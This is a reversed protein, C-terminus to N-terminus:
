DGAAYTGNGPITCQQDENHAKAIRCPTDVEIKQRSADVVIIYGRKNACAIEAVLGGEVGDSEGIYRVDSIDCGKTPEKVKILKDLQARMSAETTLSCQNRSAQAIFCDNVRLTSTSGPQPVFGILGWPTSSCKFEIYDRKTNEQTGIINFQTVGCVKGGAKLQADYGSNADKTIASTDSLTCGGLGGATACPVTRNFSGDANALVIFGTKGAACGFEYFAGPADKPVGVFRVDSVQCSADAKAALPKLSDVIKAKTTYTCPTSASICSNFVAKGGPAAALQPYDILGGMGDECGVEYRDILPESGSSGVVRANNVVCNPLFPKAVDNLWKYHPSNEPLQCQPAGPQKEKVTASMTCTFTQAPETLSYATIMFGPGTQCAVEYFLGKIKKGDKTLETNGVLYADTLACNVKAATLLGPVEAKSKTQIAPDIKMAPAPAAFAATGSLSALLALGTAMVVSRATELLRTPTFPFTM